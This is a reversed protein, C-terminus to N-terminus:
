RNGAFEFDITIDKFEGVYSTPLPKLRTLTRLARLVSTDMTANGSSRVIQHERVTGDRYVRISVVAVTGPRVSARSPRNWAEYCAHRVLAYYWDYPFDDVAVNSRSLAPSLLNRIEEESAQRPEPVPTSQPMTKSRRIRKKSRKIKKKQPKQIPIPEPEPEPKLAVPEPESPTPEPPELAVHTTPLSPEAMMALDVYTVVEHTERRLWSRIWHSLVILLIVVLHAATVLLMNRKMRPKM